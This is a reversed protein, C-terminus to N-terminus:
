LEDVPHDLVEALRAIRAEVVEDGALRLEVVDEM